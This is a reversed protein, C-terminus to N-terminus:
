QNPQPAVAIYDRVLPEVQAIEPNWDGFRSSVEIDADQVAQTAGEFGTVTGRTADVEIALTDVVKKTAPSYNVETLGLEHEVAEVSEASPTIGAEEISDESAETMILVSLLPLVNVTGGTSEIDAKVAELDSVTIEEGNVTAATNGGTCGTLALGAVATLVALKKM